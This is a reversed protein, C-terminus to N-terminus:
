EQMTSCVELFQELHRRREPGATAVLDPHYKEDSTQLYRALDDLDADAYRSCMNLTFMRRRTDGGYSAHLMAQHFAVVDGPDSELAFAPVDCGPIGFATDCGHVRYGLAERAENVIHSGPILRLAGSDRRVPDLYLAIKLYDSHEHISDCHWHTDGVYQNGDSSTYNFDDGLVGAAIGTIRSDDLLGRLYEHQDIFQLCMSRTKDDHQWANREFVQMFAVTIDDICDSMLGPLQLYGFTQFFAKQHDTLKFETM